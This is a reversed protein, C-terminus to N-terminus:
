CLPGLHFDHGHDQLRKQIGNQTQLIHETKKDLSEIKEELEKIKELLMTAASYNSSKPAM